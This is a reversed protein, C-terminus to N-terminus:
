ASNDGTFGDQTDQIVEKDDMCMGTHINGKPTGM